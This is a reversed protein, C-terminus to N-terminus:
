GQPGYGGHDAAPGYSGTPGAPAMRELLLATRRTNGEVNISLRILASGAFFYLAIFATYLVGIFLILLARGGGESSLTAVFGIVTALTGVALTVWGLVFLLTAILRLARYREDM